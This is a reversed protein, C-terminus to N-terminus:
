KLTIEIIKKNGKKQNVNKSIKLKRVEYKFFKM